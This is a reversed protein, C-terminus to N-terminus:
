VADGIMLETKAQKGAKLLLDLDIKDIRLSKMGARRTGRNSNMYWDLFAMAQSRSTLINWNNMLKIRNLLKIVSPDDFLNSDSQM